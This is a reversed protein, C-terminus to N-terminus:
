IEVDRPRGQRFDVVLSEPAHPAIVERGRRRSETRAAVLEPLDNEAAVANRAAVCRRASGCSRRARGRGRLDPRRRVMAAAPRDGPCTSRRRASRFLSTCPFFPTITPHPIILVL